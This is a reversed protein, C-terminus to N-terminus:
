LHFDTKERELNRLRVVIAVIPYYVIMNSFQGVAEQVLEGLYFAFLFAACAAFFIKIRSNHARFFGQVAYLLTVFYLICSMALGVWGTELAKNLYGSDPPFGALAHNPNYKKGNNGTTSLGGGFPHQRIYPQIAARNDERVKYSEDKSGMFSSRFRILTVNSYIPAYMLFLFTCTAFLAFLRTAKKKITLLVFMATGGIMMANATRTGSYAMGMLMILCGSLLVYKRLAKKENIGIIIFLLACGAMIIGFATPDSMISFKRYDGNIFILGFRVEDSKVWAEEFPFLGHWQQICGYFGAILACIFLVKLFRYIKRLDTFVNYAIFLIVISDLVKRIIQFWGEFSHGLPNFLEVCLYIFIIFLFLTPKRSFFQGTYKRLDQNRIFLGLFTVGVLIDTAVGVPFEDNFLLRSFYYAFFAYVLNIYLGWEPSLLCIIVIAIGLIAGLIGFGLVLGKASLFGIIGALGGILFYGLWSNLKKNLLADQLAYLVPHSAKAKSRIYKASEM